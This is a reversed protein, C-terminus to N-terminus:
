SRVPYPSAPLAAAKIRPSVAIEKWRAAKNMGTGKYGTFLVSGDGRVGLTNGNGACVYVVGKWGSVDCEGNSNNGVAAVTGDNRLGVTHHYGASVSIINKWESFMDRPDTSLITGDARIGIVRNDGSEIAVINTWNLRSVSIRDDGLTGAIKVTGDYLLGATHRQGASIASLGRWGSVNCQGSSNSGAAVATGDDKLGVTHFSGARLSIIKDWYRVSCQGYTNGGASLAKGDRRLGVTHSNGASVACIDDWSRFSNQFGDLKGAKLVAGDRRLGIIHEPGSAIPVFRAKESNKYLLQSFVEKDHNVPPPVPKGKEAPKVSGVSVEEGCKICTLEGRAKSFRFAYGGCGACIFTDSDTKLVFGTTRCYVSPVNGINPSFTPYKEYNCSPDFGCILCTENPSVSRCVPCEFM